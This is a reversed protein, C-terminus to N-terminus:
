ERVDVRASFVVAGAVFALRGALNFFDAMIYEGELLRGPGSHVIPRAMRRRVKLIQLM